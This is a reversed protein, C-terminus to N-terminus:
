GSHLVRNSEGLLGGTVVARGPEQTDLVQPQSGPQTVDRVRRRGGRGDVIVIM